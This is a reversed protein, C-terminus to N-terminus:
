RALLGQSAVNGTRTLRPSPGAQRPRHAVIAVVKGLIIADDAPIQRYAPNSPMLWAYGDAMQLTKVTAEATGDRYFHAAVIEANEATPQRRIV